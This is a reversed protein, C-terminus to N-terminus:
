QDETDDASVDVQPSQGPGLQPARDMAAALVVAPHEGRAVRELMWDPWGTIDLSAMAGRMELRDQYQERNGKLLFMTLPDSYRQIYGGAEGKYWGVPETVGEVARRYAEREIRDIWAEKAEETAERFGPVRDLWDYWTGRSIRAQRTAASVNGTERYVALALRVRRDEIEPYEWDDLLNKRDSVNDLEDSRTNLVDTKFAQKVEPEPNDLNNTQKRKPM